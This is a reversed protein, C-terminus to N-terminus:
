LRGEEIRHSISKEVERRKFIIKKCIKFFFVGIEVLTSISAGAFLGFNGGIEALFEEFEKEMNINKITFFNCNSKIWVHTRKNGMADEQQLQKDALYLQKDTLNTEDIRLYDVFYDVSAFATKYRCDNPSCLEKRKVGADAHDNLECTDFKYDNHSEWSM